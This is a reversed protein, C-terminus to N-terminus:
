KINDTALALEEDLILEVGDIGVVQDDYVGVDGVRFDGEIRLRQLVNNQTDIAHLKVNALIRIYVKADQVMKVTHVNGRTQAIDQTLHLQLLRTILINALSKHFNQDDAEHAASSKRHGSFGLVGHAVVLTGSDAPIDVVMELFGERQILQCFLCVHVFKVEGVGELLLITYGRNVIHNGSTQLFAFIQKGFGVEGHGLNGM